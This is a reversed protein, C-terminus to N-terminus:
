LKVGLNRLKISLFSPSDSLYDFVLITSLISYVVLVFVMFLYQFSIPMLPLIYFVTLAILVMEAIEPLYHMTLYIIGEIEHSM